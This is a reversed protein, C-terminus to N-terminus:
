DESQLGEKAALIMGALLHYLDASGDPVRFEVTQKGPIYPLRRKGPPKCGKDYKNKSFYRGLLDNHPGGPSAGVQPLLNIGSHLSHSLGTLSEQMIKKATDIMLWTISVMRKWPLHIHLLRGAKGATIKPAFSITVYYKQGLM